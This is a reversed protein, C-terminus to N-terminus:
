PSPQLARVLELDLEITLEGAISWQRPDIRAVDRAEIM